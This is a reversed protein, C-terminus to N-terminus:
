RNIQNREHIHQFYLKDELQKSVHYMVMKGHDHEFIDKYGRTILSIFPSNPHPRRIDELKGGRNKQGRVDVILSERKNKICMPLEKQITEIFKPHYTDDNDIRSQILYDPLEITELYEKHRTFIKHGKIQDIYKQPTNKDLSVLLEFDQCTQNDLSDLLRNYMPLRHEMWKDPDSVNYPNDSYLGQNYRVLVFHKSEM